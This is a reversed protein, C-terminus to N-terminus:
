DPQCRCLGSYWKQKEGSVNVEVLINIKRGTTGAKKDLERALDIRDVSHIYDFLRVAYKAKNTQLHGIMHWRVNKEIVAIKEKAERVYNEGFMLIGADIAKGIYLPSVTKTVALLKISDPARQSKAAAVAIKQRVANINAAIDIEM